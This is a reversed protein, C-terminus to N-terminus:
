PWIVEMEWSEMQLEDYQTMIEKYPFNGSHVCVQHMNFTNLILLKYFESFTQHTSTKTCKSLVSDTLM